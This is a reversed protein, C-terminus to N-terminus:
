LVSNLQVVYNLIHIIHIGAAELENAFKIYM